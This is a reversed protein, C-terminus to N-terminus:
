RAMDHWLELRGGAGLPVAVWPDPRHIALGRRELGLDRVIRPPIWGIDLSADGPANREDLVLVRRGARALYHAAVLENVGAGIVVTLGSM